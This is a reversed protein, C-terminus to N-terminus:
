VHRVGTALILYDYPLEGDSLVVTRAELDVAVVEAM